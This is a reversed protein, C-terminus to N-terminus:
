VERLSPKGNDKVHTNQVAQSIHEEVSSQIAPNVLAYKVPPHLQVAEPSTIHIKLRKPKAQNKIAKMAAGGIM